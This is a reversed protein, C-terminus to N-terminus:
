VDFLPPPSNGQLIRPAVISRRGGKETERDYYREVELIDPTELTDRRKDLEIGMGSPNM